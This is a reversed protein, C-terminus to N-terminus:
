GREHVDDRDDGPSSVQSSVTVGPEGARFHVSPGVYDARLTSVVRAEVALDAVTAAEVPAGYANLRPLRPPSQSYLALVGRGPHDHIKRSCSRHGRMMGSRREFTAGLGRMRTLVISVWVVVGM